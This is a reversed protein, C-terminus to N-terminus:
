RRLMSFHQCSLLITVRGFFTKTNGFQIGRFQVGQLQCLNSSIEYFHKRNNTEPVVFKAVTIYEQAIWPIHFHLIKDNM